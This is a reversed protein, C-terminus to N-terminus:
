SVVILFVPLYSNLRWHDFDMFITRFLFAFPCTACHPRRTFPDAKKNLFFKISKFKALNQGNKILIRQLVIFM